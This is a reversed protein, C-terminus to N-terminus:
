RRSEGAVPTGLDVDDIADLRQLDELVPRWGGALAAYALDEAPPLDELFVFAAGAIIRPLHERSYRASRGTGRRAELVERLTTKEGCVSKWRTEVAKAREPDSARAPEAVLAYHGLDGEPVFSTWVVRASAAREESGQAITVNGRTAIVEYDVNLSVTRVRAIVDIPVDVWRAVERGDATKEVVRRAIVDTFHQLRTDANVEGFSGWVVRDAGAKRGLRIASARDMGDLQAVTMEQEVAQGGIFRTFRVAPPNMRRSLDTRWQNAVELAVLAGVSSRFPVLAVRTLAEEEARVALAAANRYGPLYSEVQALEIHALKPRGSKLATAGRAYHERAACRRLAQEDRSWADGVAVTVYRAADFRFAAYRLVQEAAALSDVDALAHIRRQWDNSISVAAAHAASRAQPNAPAKDLARTALEWARWHEGGALKSKSREALKTPGACAPVLILALLVLAYRRRMPFGELTGATIPGPRAPTSRGSRRGRRRGDVDKELAEIV